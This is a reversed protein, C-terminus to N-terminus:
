PEAFDTNRRRGARQLQRLGNIDLIEINGAKLRRALGEHELRAFARAVTERAIGQYDALDFRNIPLNLCSSKTDYFEPYQLFELLFNALRQYTSQQGLIMIQRQAQRLDHAVRVLMNLQLQPERMMIEKLRQWPFRYVRLPCVAEVTNVYVGREPLGFLDGPVMFAMIQRQGNEAHRSIRVIGEDIAYIFHADEGESFITIGGRKYDLVTAINRLEQQEKPSLLNEIGSPRDSIKDFPRARIEPARKKERPSGRPLPRKM